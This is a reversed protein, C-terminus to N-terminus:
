LMERQTFTEVAPKSAALRTAEPWAQVLANYQLADKAWKRRECLTYLRYSLDRALEARAGGLRATLDAAGEEGRTDLAHVLHHTAEWITFRKDTNPDWGPTLEDTRLLRVKGAKAVLIGAEAM